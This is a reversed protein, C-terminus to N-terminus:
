FFTRAETINLIEIAVVYLVFINKTKSVILSFIGFVCLGDTMMCSVPHLCQSYIVNSGQQQCDLSVHEDIWVSIKADLADGDCAWWHSSYTFSALDIVYCFKSSDLVHIFDSQYTICILCCYTRCVFVRRHTM